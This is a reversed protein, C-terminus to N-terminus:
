DRRGVRGPVTPEAREPAYATAHEDLAPRKAYVHAVAPPAAKSESTTIAGAYFLCAVDRDLQPSLCGTRQGLESFSASECSLEKLIRLHSDGLWSLPVRPSGRYHITRDRYRSPLLNGESRRVYNWALQAPTSRIFGPPLARAGVPRKAWAAFELEDTDAQPCLAAYGHWFDLIALLKDRYSVHFVGHRLLAGRQVIQAGLLFQARAFRLWSDFQALAQQVSASSDADFTCRPELNPDVIPTAFAVPRDTARMDLNLTAETPSGPSVRLNGNPLVRCKAGNVLWADAEGFHCLRWDAGSTHHLSAEIVKHQERSFGAAGVWFAPPEQVDIESEPTASM